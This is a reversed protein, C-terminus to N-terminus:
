SDLSTIGERIAYKTLEAVSHLDLKEMINKRHTEVTKVSLFLLSAIEKTSRGEALLQLVERERKTLISFASFSERPVQNIYDKIVNEAISPNLYIKNVLAARIAQVLEEFASDKLLYASAGANLMEAVFRKEAHMSLAIVKVDPMDAKIQRTAEIGNLGPMAVDMIIVDPSLKRTKKVATIGDDAEDVVEFDAQKELLNHLGQRMIKHDDALIIKISM